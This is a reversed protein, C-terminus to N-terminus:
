ERLQNSSDNYIFLAERGVDSSSGLADGLYDNTYNSSILCGNNYV